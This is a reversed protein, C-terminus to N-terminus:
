GGLNVQMNYNDIARNYEDFVANFEREPMPNEALARRLDKMDGLINAIYSEMDFWLPKRGLSTTVDPNEAAYSVAEDFAKQLDGELEKAKAETLTGSQGFADLGDVLDRAEMMVNALQWDFDRGHEAEMAELEKQRLFRSQTDIEDSIASSAQFLADFMPAMQGDLEKGKAMGDDLYDKQSYYYLDAENMLPILDRLTKAYVAGSDDLVANEPSMKIAADLSDACEKTFANDEEYVQIKFQALGAVGSENGVVLLDYNSRYQDYNIRLATDVVNLCRIYPQL